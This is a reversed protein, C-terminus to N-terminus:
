FRHVQNARGACEHLGEEADDRCGSFVQGVDRRLTEAGEAEM